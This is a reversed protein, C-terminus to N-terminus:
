SCTGHVLESHVQFVVFCGLCKQGMEPSGPISVMLQDRSGICWLLRGVLVASM